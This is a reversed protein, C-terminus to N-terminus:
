VPSATTYTSIHLHAAKGAASGASTSFKLSVSVDTQGSLQLTINVPGNDEVVSYSEESLTIRVGSFCICLTEKEKERMEAMRRGESREEGGGIDEIGQRVRCM